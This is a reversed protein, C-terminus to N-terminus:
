PTITEKECLEVNKESFYGADAIVETLTGLKAPLKNLEELAPQLELKDNTHQTVHVGVILMTNVDVSAQANYAQMFEGGSVPM